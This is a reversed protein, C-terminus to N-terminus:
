RAPGSIWSRISMVLRVAPARLAALKRDFTGTIDVRHEARDNSSMVGCAAGDLILQQNRWRAVNVKPLQKM